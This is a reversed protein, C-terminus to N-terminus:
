PKAERALKIDHLAHRHLTVAMEYKEYAAEVRAHMRRHTEFDDPSNQVAIHEVDCLDRWVTRARDRAKRAKIEANLLEDIRAVATKADAIM